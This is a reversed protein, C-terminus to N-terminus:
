GLQPYPAVPHPARAHTVLWIATAIPAIILVAFMTAVLWAPWVNVAAGCNTLMGSNSCSTTGVSVLSLAGGVIVPFVLGLPWILTGLVKDRRSWRPSAWLLVAGVFWGIFFIVGGILLLILAVIEMGGLRPRSEGPAEAGAAAVIQGPDGLRELLNRTVVESDTEGAARAEAIHARVQALLDERSKRPLRRATTRLRRLYDEILRDADSGPEQDRNM